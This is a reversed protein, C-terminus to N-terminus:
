AYLNQSNIIKYAQDVQQSITLQTNDIESFDGKLFSILVEKEDAFKGDTSNLIYLLHALKQNNITRFMEKINFYSLRGILLLENRCEELLFSNKDPKPLFETLGALFWENIQNSQNNITRFHSMAFDIDGQLILKITDKGIIDILKKQAYSVFVEIANKSTNYKKQAEKYNFKTTLLFNMKEKAKEQKLWSLEKVFIVIEMLANLKQLELKRLDGEINDNNLNAQTIKVANELEKLFKM